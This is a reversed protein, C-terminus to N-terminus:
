EIAVRLVDTMPYRAITGNRNVVTLVGKDVTFRSVETMPREMRSGNRFLVVLNFNAMPDAAAEPKSEPQTTERTVADRSVPPRNDRRSARGARTTRGDDKEAKALDDTVIVKPKGVTTKLPAVDEAPREPATPPEIEEPKMAKEAVEDTREPQEPEENKEETPEERRAIITGVTNVKTGTDEAVSVKPLEPPTSTDGSAAIFGGAFKLRFQGPDDNPTRGQVRLLLKEPKRLYVVRGTETEGRDAYVVIKTLPRLAQEIFLDIDANLNSTVINIFLDGQGGNFTYYYTTQRADGIDRARIEGSVENSFVPTPFQQEVSQAFPSVSSFLVVASLALPKTM